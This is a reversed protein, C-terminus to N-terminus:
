SSETSLSWWAKLSSGRDMCEPVRLRRGPYDGACVQPSKARKYFLKQVSFLCSVRAIDGVPWHIIEGKGSQGCPKPNQTWHYLLEASGTKPHLWTVFDQSFLVPNFRCDKAQRTASSPESLGKVYICLGEVFPNTCALRRLSFRCIGTITM